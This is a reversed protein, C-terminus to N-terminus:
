KGVYDRILANVRAPREHIVWHSGDPIREITLNAVYQDLGILNGKLLVPDQEGWVVLTPVQSPQSFRTSIDAQNTNEAPPALRSARYYNLSGTLAGPQSWAQMYLEMDADSLVRKLGFGETLQAYNNASVIQEADPSQFTLMYQSVKQQAPNERLERQFVYPHPSNIIVLRELLEPYAVAFAWAVAGGWDHAVLTCTQAGLHAILQRIDEILYSMRYYEAEQPKDSLNYGRLDPAVVRFDRQFENLQEKWAYWFEPFGHLFLMLPGEGATVYHLRIGNIDAYQHDLMIIGRGKRKIKDHRAAAPYPWRKAGLMAVALTAMDTQKVDNM